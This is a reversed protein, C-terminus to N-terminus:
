FATRGPTIGVQVERPELSRPKISSPKKRVAERSIKWFGSSVSRLPQAIKTVITVVQKVQNGLYNQTLALLHEKIYAASYPEHGSFCCHTHSKHTNASHIYVM